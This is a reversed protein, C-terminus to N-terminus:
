DPPAFFNPGTSAPAKASFDSLKWPNDAKHIDDNEALSIHKEAIAHELELVHQARADTDTFGALRLMASVHAQYKARVERMTDSNSIYYERDPLEIGGQM